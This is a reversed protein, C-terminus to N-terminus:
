PEDPVGYATQLWFRMNQYCSLFVAVATAKVGFSRIGISAVAQAVSKYCNGLDASITAYPLHM